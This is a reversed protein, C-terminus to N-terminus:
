ERKDIVSNFVNIFTDVMVDINVEEAVIRFSEMGKRRLEPINSLAEKLASILMNLNNPEILWGNEPRVLDSQTGDGEAVIVPLAYTMAQQIALGGTGPLVFLDSQLFLDELAEGYQAGVFKVRSYYQQALDEYNKRFPGDGVIIIEPQIEESLQSCAQFLMDLRKRQQLRGVFLVKARGVFHNPRNPPKGKPPSSVANVAVFIRDQPFGLSYYDNAGKHSYAVLADFQMIFDRRVKNRIKAFKGTIKPLGLGWGIVPRHREKMWRIASRSSLYRSNAELVILDPNTQALWSKLGTQWLIYYPSKINFLSRNKALFTEVGQVRTASHIQEDAEPHGYFLSFGEACRAALREIFPARYQPLVRQQLGVKGPFVRTEKM